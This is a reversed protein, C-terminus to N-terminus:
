RKIIFDTFKDSSKKWEIKLSDVRAMPPGLRLREIFVEISNKPGEAVVQVCGDPLNRVYGVIGLEQATTKTFQRFFVRQVRGCVYVETFVRENEM